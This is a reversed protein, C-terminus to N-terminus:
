FVQRTATTRNGALQTVEPSDSEKEPGRDVRKDIYSRLSRKWCEFPANNREELLPLFLPVTLGKPVLTCVCVRKASIYLISTAM